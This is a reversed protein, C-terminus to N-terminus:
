TNSVDPIITVQGALHTTRFGDSTRTIQFDWWGLRPVLGDAEESTMAFEVEGNVADTATVDFTAYLASSRSRTARVQALFTHGTLDYPEWVPEEETGVNQEVVDTFLADDGQVLTIPANSPAAM